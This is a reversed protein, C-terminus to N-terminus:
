KAKKKKVHDPLKKGKPTEKAFQKAFLPRAVIKRTEEGRRDNYKVTEFVWDSQEVYRLFNSLKMDLERLAEVQVRDLEGEFSEDGDVDKADDLAKGIM